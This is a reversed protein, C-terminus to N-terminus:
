KQQEVVQFTIRQMLEVHSCLDKCFREGLADTDSRKSLVLAIHECLRPVFCGSEVRAGSDLLDILEERLAEREQWIKKERAALRHYKALSQQTIRDFSM